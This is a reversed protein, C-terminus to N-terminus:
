QGSFNDFAGSVRDALSSDKEGDDKQRFAGVFVAGVITTISLIPATVIVVLFAPSLIMINYPSSFIQHLVHWLLGAMFCVTVFGFAVAIWKIWYRQDAERSAKEAIKAEAKLLTYEVREPDFSGRGGEDPITPVEDDSM